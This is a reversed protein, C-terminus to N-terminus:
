LFAGLDHHGSRHDLDPHVNGVCGHHDDLVCLTEAQRLQMLEPAKQEEEEMEAAAGKKKKAAASQEKEKDLHALSPRLQLAQKCEPRPM